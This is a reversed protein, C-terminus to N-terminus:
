LGLIPVDLDLSVNSVGFLRRILPDASNELEDAYISRIVANYVSSHRKKRSEYNKVGTKTFFSRM